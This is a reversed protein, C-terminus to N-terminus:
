LEYYAEWEFVNRANWMMWGSCNNDRTANIQSHIKNTDYVAGLDFDQLWPRFKHAFNTREEEGYEEVIQALGRELTIDIIEYPFSAPNSYGEFGDPYHSPYVMPSIYDVYPYADVLRQGINYDNKEYFTIGFLDVSVPVGESRLESDLYQFFRLMIDAKSELSSDWVPYAIQSILGDSPFRVYDFQVEDFGREYAERALAVNYDWIDKSAPDLWVSGISDYWTSGWSTKLVSGPNISGAAGDRFVAIRAIRYVGAEGLRELVSDLDNISPNDLAYDALDEDNPTFAVWGFDTKLDVVVSNIDSEEFFNMYYDFNGGATSSTWYISRVEDPVEVHFQEPEVQLGLSTDFMEIIPSIISGETIDPKSNSIGLSSGAIVFVLFVPVGFHLLKLKHHKYTRKFM